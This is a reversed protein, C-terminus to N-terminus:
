RTEDIRTKGIPSRHILARFFPRWLGLDRIAAGPSIRAAAAVAQRTAPGDGLVNYSQALRRSFGYRARVTERHALAPLEDLHKSAVQITWWATVDWRVNGSWVRYCAAPDSAYALRGVLSLRLYLDWDEYADLAEDYGGVAAFADQRMVTASTFMACAQALGAYDVGLRAGNAFARRHLRTTVQDPKGDADIVRTAGHVLALGADSRIHSVLAGTKAPLLLDDSDLFGLIDGRAEAAGANRARAANGFRGDVVRIEPHLRRAAAVSGDTSGDDVVIVELPQEPANLASAIADLLLRGRDRTPIVISIGLASM